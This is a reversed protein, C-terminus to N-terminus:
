HRYLAYGGSFWEDSLHMLVLHHCRARCERFYNEYAPLPRWNSSVVHICDDDFCTLNLDTCEEEVMNGFVNRLWDVELLNDAHWILKM